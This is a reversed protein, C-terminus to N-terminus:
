LSSSVFSSGFNSLCSTQRGTYYYDNANRRKRRGVSVRSITWALKILKPTILQSPAILAVQQRSYWRMAVRGKLAYTGFTNNDCIRQHYPKSCVKKYSTPNHFNSSNQKMVLSPKHSRGTTFSMTPNSIGAPGALVRFYCLDSNWRRCTTFERPLVTFYHPMLDLFFLWRTLDWYVM